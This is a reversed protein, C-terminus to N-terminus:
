REIHMRGQSKMLMRPKLIGQTTIIRLNIEEAIVCKKARREKKKKKREKKAKNLM